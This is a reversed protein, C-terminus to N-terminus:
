LKKRKLKKLKQQRKLEKRQKKYTLAMIYVFQELADNFDVTEVFQNPGFIDEMFMVEEEEPKLYIGKIAINSIKRKEAIAENLKQVDIIGASPEGDTIVFISKLYQINPNKAKLKKSFAEIRDHCELIGESINTGGDGKYEVKGGRIRAINLLIKFLLNRNTYNHTFDAGEIFNTSFFHFADYTKREELGLVLLYCLKFLNRMKEHKMSGSSDLAFANIQEVPQRDVNIRLSKMVEGNMWKEHDQITEPDFEVGDISHRYPHFEISKRFPLAGQFARKVFSIFPSVEKEIKLLEDLWIEKRFNSQEGAELIGYERMKQLRFNVQNQLRLIYEELSRQWKEKAIVTQFPHVTKSFEEVAFVSPKSYLKLLIKQLRAM